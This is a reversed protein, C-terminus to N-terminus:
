DSMDGFGDFVARIVSLYAEPDKALHNVHRTDQYCLETVEMGARRAKGAHARVDELRTLHDAESAVYAIRRKADDPNVWLRADLLTKRYLEEPHDYRGLAINLYLLCLIIHVILSSLM